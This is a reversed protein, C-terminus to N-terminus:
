LKNRSSSPKSHNMNGVIRRYRHLHRCNIITSTQNESDTKEALHLSKNLM